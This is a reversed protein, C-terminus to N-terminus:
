GRVNEHICIFDILEPHERQIREVSAASQELSLAIAQEEGPAVAHEGRERRIANQEVAKDYPVGTVHLIATRYRHSRAEELRFKLFDFNAGTGMAVMSKRDRKYRQIDADIQKM